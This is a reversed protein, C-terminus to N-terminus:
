NFGSEEIQKQEEYYQKNDKIQELLLEANKDNKYSQGIILKSDMKGTEIFNRKAEKSRQHNYNYIGPAMCAIDRPNMTSNQCSKSYYNFSNSSLSSHKRSSIIDIMEKYLIKDNNNVKDMWNKLIGLLKDTDMNDLKYDGYKKIYDMYTMRFLQTQVICQGRLQSPDKKYGFNNMNYYDFYYTKNDKSCRNAYCELASLARGQNDNLLKLEQAQIVQSKQIELQMQQNNRTINKNIAPNSLENYNLTPDLNGRAQFNYQKIKNLLEETSAFLEHFFQNSQSKYDKIANLYNEIIQNNIVIKKNYKMKPLENECITLNTKINNIVDNVNINSNKTLKELNKVLKELSKEM